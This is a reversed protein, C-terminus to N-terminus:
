RRTAFIKLMGFGFGRHRGVGRRLLAAFADGDAVELEGALTADPRKILKSKRRANQDRRLLRDLNFRTLRAHVLRAGGHRQYQEALWQVYTDQRNIPTAPDDAEWVQRLFADVESGAKHYRGASAMRVVPCVRVEFRLPANAPFATPMPKSALREWDCMEFVMPGANLRAIERMDAAPVDAYALVRLRRADPKEVSFLRPAMRGLLERLACHVVYGHDTQRLPLHLARALEVLRGMDLWMQVLHLAGTHTLTDTM